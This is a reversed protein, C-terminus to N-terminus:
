HGPGGHEELRRIADVLKEIEPDGSRKAIRSLYKRVQFWAGHREALVLIGRGFAAERMFQSVNVGEADAAARIVYDVNKGVRVPITRAKAEDAARSM